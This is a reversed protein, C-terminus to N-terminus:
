DVRRMVKTSLDYILNCPSVFTATDFVVKSLRHKNWSDEFLHYSENDYYMMKIIGPFIKPKTAKTNTYLNLTDHTVQFYIISEGKGLCVDQEVSFGLCPDKKKSIYYVMGDVGWGFRYCYILDNNIKGMVYRQYNLGVYPDTCGAILIIVIDLFWISITTKM